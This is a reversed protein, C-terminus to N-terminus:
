KGITSTSATLGTVDRCSPGDDGAGSGTVEPGARGGSEGSLAVGSLSDGTGSIWPGSSDASVCTLGVGYMGCAEEFVKGHNTNGTAPLTQHFSQNLGSPRRGIRIWWPWSMKAGFIVGSTATNSPT